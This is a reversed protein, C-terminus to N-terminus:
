ARKALEIAKLESPKIVRDPIEALLDEVNNYRYAELVWPYRRFHEFMGYEEQSSHLIPQVPVSPLSPVILMLEQPISRADTIDAIVFRSLHALTSVTETIDRSSPKDFDFLVPMYNRRGLEERIADLVAKRAPTFRGLILVVKSTITDIVSRIKQNNLLLYIFQAVELNDVTIVPQGRDSITLNTQLTGQLNADWASIGFVLCDTMAAGALNTKVLSARTLDAGCLDARSFDAGNLNAGSLNAMRLVGEGFNARSLNAGDLNAGSLNAKSFNTERLDTRSLDAGSLDAGKLDARTIKVGRLNVGRFQAGHLTMGSLNNGPIVSIGTLNCSNSLHVTRGAAPGLIAGAFNSEGLNAGDLNAGILNSRAFNSKAINSDTLDTGRLTGREFNARLINPRSLNAWSLDAHSLNVSDFNSARFDAATLDASGFNADRINACRFVANMLFADGFNVKGIEANTFNTGRLNAGALNLESLNADTLDPSTVPHQERWRNWAEVGQQLLRLHEEDPM